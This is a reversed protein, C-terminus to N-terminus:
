HVELFVTFFRCLLLAELSPSKKISSIFYAYLILMGDAHRGIYVTSGTSPNKYFTPPLVSYKIMLNQGITTNSLKSCNTIFVLPCVFKDPHFRCYRWKILPGLIKYSSLNFFFQKITSIICLFPFSSIYNRIEKCNKSNDDCM